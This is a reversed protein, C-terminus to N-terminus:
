DYSEKKSLQRWLPERILLKNDQIRFSFLDLQVLSVRLVLSEVVEELVVGVALVESKVVVEARAEPLTFYFIIFIM